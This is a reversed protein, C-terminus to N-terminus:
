RKWSREEETNEVIRRAEMLKEPISDLSEDIIDQVATKVEHLGERTLFEQWLRIKEKEAANHILQRVAILMLGVVLEVVGFIFILYSVQEVTFNM